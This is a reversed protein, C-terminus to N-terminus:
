IFDFIRLTQLGKKITNLREESFGDGRLKLQGATMQPRIISIDIKNEEM